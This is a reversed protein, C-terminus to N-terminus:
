LPPIRNGKKWSWVPFREWQLVSASLQTTARRKKFLQRLLWVFDVSMLMSVSRSAALNKSNCACCCFARPLNTNKKIIKYIKNWICGGEVYLGFTCCALIWCNLSFSKIHQHESYNNSYLQFSRITSQSYGTLHTWITYTVVRMRTAETTRILFMKAKAKMNTATSCFSDTSWSVDSNAHIKGKFLRQWWTSIFLLRPQQLTSSNSCEFTAAYYVCVSHLAVYYCYLHLM